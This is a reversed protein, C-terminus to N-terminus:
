VADEEAMFDEMLGRLVRTNNKAKLDEINEQRKVVSAAAYEKDRQSIRKKIERQWERLFPKIIEIDPEEDMYGRHQRITGGPEVEITYYPTTSDSARRLFCIYTERQMIRDFYRDTAGACHHLAQGEMIIETLRQPVKILYQDNSYEYKSKIEQLIKEADPFRERMKRAEEERRRADRKMEERIRQRNIEEVCENHRRKLERPRYMMEDETKRGLQKLMQLYDYWQEIIAKAKKGKYGEAQQRSVYNMIQQPTMRDLIFDIDTKRIRNDSMWRITEQSIKVGTQDSLRMWEIINDGGNVERIRNILQRDSIGFIEEITSGTIHLPGYYEGRWPYVNHATDQLLKEFHGKWLYEAVGVMNKNHQMSLLSNYDLKLGAAAMQSMIRGWCQYATGALTEEVGEPYLYGESERRNNPNRKNDFYAYEYNWRGSKEIAGNSKYQNYFIEGVHAPQIHLSYLIIRVAENIRIERAEKNWLLTVDFYRIVSMRDDIRQMMAFHTKKEIHDTRKKVMSKRGCCPCIVMDNHRFRKGSNAKQLESEMYAKGCACHWKQTDKDWFIFNEAGEREGIWQRAKEPMPPVMNMKNQVKLVRNDEIRERKKRAYDKEMEDILDFTNTTYHIKSMQSLAEKVMQRMEETDINCRKKEDCYNWWYGAIMKIDLLDGFKNQKWEGTDLNYQKYEGTSINIAHRGRYSGMRFVDLLLLDEKKQATIIYEAKRSPQVPAIKELAKCKM